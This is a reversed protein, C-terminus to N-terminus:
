RKVPNSVAPPPGAALSDSVMKSKERKRVAQRQKWAEREREAKIADVVTPMSDLIRRTAARRKEDFGTAAIETSKKGTM